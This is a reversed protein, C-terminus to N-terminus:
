PNASPYPEEVANAEGASEVPQVTERGNRDPQTITISRTDSTAADDGPAPRDSASEDLASEDAAGEAPTSAPTGDPNGVPTVSPQVAKDTYEFTRQSLSHILELARGDNDPRDVLVSVAYRKGNSLDVLAVDGLMKDIFGTKNYTLAGKEELGAALLRKNATRKLINLVRDRSRPTLTDGQVLLMAHVLDRASTTNMGAIDPLPNNLRTEELGYSAFRKNLVEPGGLLAIMVNTATNDSHVIMQTAVELATFQTGPPSLQMDGSGEAIQDPLIAVTQNPDINGKDVEEFFALLIPLKITSAAAIAERGDLDVYDGTDVDVYFAKFSLGPYLEPIKELEAKLTPIEQTLAIPFDAGERSNAALVSETRAANTEDGLRNALLTGFITAIGAGAILLWSAYILYKPLKPRRSRRRMLSSSLPMSGATRSASGRRSGKSLLQPPKSLRSQPVAQSADRGATESNPKGLPKKPAAAYGKRRRSVKLNSQGKAAGDVSSNVLGGTQGMLKDPQRGSQRRRRTRRGTPPKDTAEAMGERSSASRPASVRSNAISGSRVLRRGNLDSGNLNSGNLNRKSGNADTM